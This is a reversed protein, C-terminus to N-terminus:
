KRVPMIDIIATRNRRRNPSSDNPYPAVPSSQISILNEPIGAKQKLEMFVANARAMRLGLNNPYNSDHRLPLDDTCGKIVVSISHASPRLQEALGALTIKAEPRLHAGEHFLGATFRVILHTDVADIDVGRVHIKPATWTDDRPVSRKASGVAPIKPQSTVATHVAWRVRGILLTAAFFCVLLVGIAGTAFPRNLWRPRGRMRAIRGLVRTYAKNAPDAQSLTSWLAEADDLKGQQARIRALLDVATPTSQEDTPLRTLLAEAELLHGARAMTAAETLILALLLASGDKAPGSRELWPQGDNGTAGEQEKQWATM